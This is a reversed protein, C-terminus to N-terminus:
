HRNAVHELLDAVREATREWTFLSERERGRAVLDARRAADELLATLGTAIASADHPNVLVAADGALEPLSTANGTLVATGVRFADLIPLGFGENLSPFCLVSAAALLVPIDADAAFGHLHWGGAPMLEEALARFRSLAPEQIGVIVLDYRARVSTPLMAWAELVRRTNKRPDEAGFAFVFPRGAALGHKATVRDVTAPDHSHAFCPDAALPIAVVKGAPIGLAAIIRSRSYESATYVLRAARASRKVKNAWAVTFAADPDLDLPIVDYVVLLTPVRSFRPGTNAPCFLADAGSTWAALPLRVREWLDFRDGPMRIRRGIINSLGAFPDDAARDQHFLRFTWGPRATAMARMLHVLTRGIGRRNPRYAQRADVAIHM